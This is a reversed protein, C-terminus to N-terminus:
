PKDFFLVSFKTKDKEEDDDLIYIYHLAQPKVLVFNKNIYTHDEL